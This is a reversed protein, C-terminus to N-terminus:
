TRFATATMTYSQAVVSDPAPEEIAALFRWLSERAYPGDAMGRTLPIDYVRKGDAEEPPPLTSLERTDAGHFKLGLKSPRDEQEIVVVVRKADYPVVVGERPAVLGPCGSFCSYDHYGDGQWLADQANSFLAIETAGAWRDPHGPYLPIDLGRQVEVHITVTGQYRTAGTPGPPLVFQFQWASLTQHPLDNKENTSPITVVADHEVAAVKMTDHDAASKVWLEPAGFTDGPETTWKVTVHVASAGQPVVAGPPPDFTVAVVPVGGALGVIAETAQDMLVLREKGGWYDHLHPRDDTLNTADFDGPKTVVVPSKETPPAAEPADAACGSLLAACALLFAPIRM